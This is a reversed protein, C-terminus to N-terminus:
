SKPSNCPPTRQTALYDYDLITHPFVLIFEVFVSALFAAYPYICLPTRAMEDENSNEAVYDIFDSTAMGYEALDALIKAWL